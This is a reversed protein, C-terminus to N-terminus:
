QHLQWTSDDNIVHWGQFLRYSPIQALDDPKVSLSSKFRRVLM